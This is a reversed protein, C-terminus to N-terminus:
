LRLRALMKQLGFRSVGLIQAAQTRNGHSRELARAIVERELAETRARLDLQDDAVAARSAIDASLDEARVVELGLACWRRVENELQRVNGPWGYRGLAEMARREIRPRRGAAHRELMHAVLLPVDDPRDRLAPVVVTLVALRYLLDQRFLGRQVRDALDRHTAAVVRVDVTRTRTAGVPRVEKQELARLLKAQMPVPMEGIEDLLLTGGHAAEFLGIRARDAGTFAGRVHGFLTAEFLAEPIAACNEAVFPGTARPGLAHIARAVVEKGTGSEGLVLVPPDSRAVLAVLDALKRAAPSAGRLEGALVDAGPAKRLAVLEAAQADVTRALRRRLSEVRRAERRTSALVRSASLAGAGISALARLLAEETPGFAGARLRDDAYLVGLVRGTAPDHEGSTVAAVLPAALVSRLHMAHVSTAGELRADARADVSSMSTGEALVRLAVSRSPAEDAGLPALGRAALVRPRGDADRVMVFAREAGLLDLTHEVLREAIRIRRTEAALASAASALVRWRADAAVEAADTARAFPARALLGQYAPVARLKARLALPLASAVRDLLARATARIEAARAADGSADLATAAAVGARLRTEFAVGREARDWAALAHERARDFRPPSSELAVRAAALHVDVSVADDGLEAMARRAADLAAEASALDGRGAEAETIRAWLAARVRPGAHADSVAGRWTALAKGLDGKRVTLEGELLALHVSVNADGADAAARAGGSLADWADADHGVVALVNALNYLARALEGRRGLRALTRVAARLDEIALALEGSEARVSALTALYVAAAHPEGAGNALEVARSLSRSAAVGDGLAVAASASVALLRAEDEPALEVPPTALRDMASRADGRAIEVLARVERVRVPETPGRELGLMEVAEGTRGEDLLVRAVIARATAREAASPEPCDLVRRAEVRADHRRGMRRLVDARLVGAETGSVGGLAEIAEDYRAASRLADGLATAASARESEGADTRVFTELLRVARDVDGRARLEDAALRVHRWTDPRRTAMAAHAAVYSDNASVAFVEAAFVSVEPDGRSAEVVDQRLVLRGDTALTAAGIRRLAESGDPLASPDDLTLDRLTAYPLAGGAAALLMAIRRSAGSPATAEDTRQRTFSSARDLPRGQRAASALARVLLGALGASAELAADLVARSPPRGIASALLRAVGDPDLAGLEVRGARVEELAHPDARLTVLVTRRESLYRARAESRHRAMTVVEEPEDALLVIGPEDLWAGAGQTFPPCYSGRTARSAQVERIVDMVLRKRGAGRPGVVEISPPGRGELADEISRALSDRVARSGIWPLRELRAAEAERSPHRLASAVSEGRLPALTEAVWEASPPREAPDRRLCECVVRALAAPVWAPLDTPGLARLGLSAHALRAVSAGRSLGHPLGGTLLEHAAAGLSFLDSAPSSTGAFAEPAMYAPTGSATGQGPARALGLDVLVATTRGREREVIVNAPKVDGHVLGAAHVAALGEAVQGVIQAALEVVSQPRGRVRQVVRDAADGRAFSEVLIPTGAVLGWPAPVSREVRVLERAAAVNPHSLRGLARLEWALRAAGDPPV